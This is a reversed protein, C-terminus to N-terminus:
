YNPDESLILGELFDTSNDFEISREKNFPVYLPIDFYKVVRSNTITQIKQIVHEALNWKNLLFIIDQLSNEDMIIDTAYQKQCIRLYLMDSSKNHVLTIVVNDIDFGSSHLLQCFFNISLATYFTKNLKQIYVDHNEHHGEGKRDNNGGGGTKPKKPPLKVSNIIYLRHKSKGHNVISNYTVRKLMSFSYLVKNKNYM